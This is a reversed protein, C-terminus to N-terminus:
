RTVKSYKRESVKLCRVRFFPECEVLLLADIKNQVIMALSTDTQRVCLHVSYHVRHDLRLDGEFVFRRCTPRRSPQHVFAEVPM